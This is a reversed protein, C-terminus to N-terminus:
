IMSKGHISNVHQQWYFGQMLCYKRKQKIWWAGFQSIKKCFFIGNDALWVRDVIKNFATNSQAQGAPHFFPWRGSVFQALCVIFLLTKLLYYAFIDSNWERYLFLTKILKGVIKKLDYKTRTNFQGNKGM